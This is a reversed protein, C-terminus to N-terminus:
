VREDAFDVVECDDEFIEDEGGESADVKALKRRRTTIVIQQGEKENGQVRVHNEIRGQQQLDADDTDDSLAAGASTRVTSIAEGFVWPADDGVGHGQLMTSEDAYAHINVRRDTHFPQYPAHTDIEAQSHLSGEEVRRAPRSSPAQWFGHLGTQSEDEQQLGITRHGQQDRASRSLADALNLEVPKSSVISPRRKGPKQNTSHGTRYIKVVDGGTVAISGRSKGTLWQVRGSTTAHAPGPLTLRNEGLHRLTNVTGTAAGVSRNFGAAVVKGSKIGAGATLSMGSFGSFPNGISAPRGRVAALLPQTRGTVMEMASGFRSSPQNRATAEDLEPSIQPSATTASLPRTIRRPPPWQLASPPLDFIHVTGRETVLALQEGEPETWVVDVIRAVTMRTYRAIQRVTPGKEAHSPDTRPVVGGGHIMRMLSWVHQVDGKASATLLGLGNPTFSVLSCGDPLAFTAIPRLAVDEKATQAVSLKELDLVCIIARQSTIRFANDDNAHTPPLSNQLQAPSSPEAPLSRPALQNNQEVPKQWYNKWAQVGQDGMWRAGKMLEQTVDRAVKNLLSEKEPTDLDCTPQPSPPSAHSSLGPPKHYSHKLDISAHITTRMSTNPSVVALWRHSLSFIAGDRQSSKRGSGDELESRDSETSSTSLSRPKKQTVSTWTKGICKFALHRGKDPSYACEFLFVEGSKGSAITIFRGCAQIRWDCGSQLGTSRSTGYAPTPDTASSSLLTAIHECKGISYVEITTQYRTNPDLKTNDPTELAQLMSASPDFLADDELEGPNQHPEHRQSLQPGNIVVAILPRLSHIPDDRALSPLLQAGIVTGRLNALRGILNLRGREINFIDLRHQLGVLLVTEVSKLSEAGALGLNDLFVCGPNLPTQGPRQTYPTGFDVEPASYFHAQQHHPLAPNQSPSRHSHMSTPREGSPSSGLYGGLSQYGSTRRIPRAHTNPPSPAPSANSFGGAIGRTPRREDPPSGALSFGNSRGEPPSSCSSIADGWEVPQGVNEAGPYTGLAALLPSSADNSADLLSPPSGHLQSLLSPPSTLEKPFSSPTRGKSNEPSREHKKKSKRGSNRAEQSREQSYPPSNSAQQAFRSSKDPLSPMWGNIGLYRGQSHDKAGMDLVARGRPLVRARVRALIGKDDVGLLGLVERGPVLAQYLDDVEGLVHLAPLAPILGDDGLAPEQRLRSRDRTRDGVSVRLVDLLHIHGQIHDEVSLMSVGVLHRLVLAQTRDAVFQVLVHRRDLTLRHPDMSVSSESDSESEAKPPMIAAPKPANKLHERMQETLAGMGISTFYNISFRTNRPNDTPFLGEYNPRLLDDKLRSQLKAMGLAEALDQFLIKIFIRSSSTTEDENLHVISLVHWGIANSSLLHGFFRAVNRLRNTEYRHITDYYKAFSSEFLETWLRNLKAFREGILGYFKSYTREQSCCEVVMSPLEPEQGVPLNIKLLKHVAEEFDLSSMITLYITRRLNTLDTNTQDKIELEKEEKAADDDSSEGSEYEADDNSGEAEGLIEAKLKRYAEEHEEWEADFKFVNLSDQLEIEDDLNARHTIQDEEEVLDLEDRIAPNDKYKDKRVQFLVEIMYQVRKDLDQEHLISRFQDFVALAIPGSMEELHQGVERTLGVAIEVSDDTPKNLLLLLIQAALIEHVVQQNVLHAIFMTSSLCVAKDNRKFAKKFQVILRHVLLEGVQPLKTNIIAAMAAYISVFASSSAAAKMISRCFLGRGRVLNETFLEPVIYKINSVNVKNILGNISKKLAEWAIRQYEKSKKDTIQAQLARLRAPPIYTGGSRFNLLKEYEAKAAAQKEEETPPKTPEPQQKRVREALQREREVARQPDVDKINHTSRPAPRPPSRRRVPSPSRSPPSRKRSLTSYTSSSDLPPPTPLRVASQMM